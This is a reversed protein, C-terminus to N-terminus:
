SVTVIQLNRAFNRRAIAEEEPTQYNKDFTQMFNDFTKIPNPDTPPPTPPPTPAATPRIRPPGPTPPPPTPPLTPPPTPPNPTPFCINPFLVCFAVPPVFFCMDTVPCGNQFQRFEELASRKARNAKKRKNQKWRLTKRGKNVRNRRRGKGRKTSSKQRPAATTTTTTTTTTTITTPNSTPRGCLPKREQTCNVSTAFLPPFQSITNAQLTYCGDDKVWYQEYAYNEKLIQSFAEKDAETESTPYYLLKATPDM